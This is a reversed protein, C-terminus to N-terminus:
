LCIQALIPIASRDQVHNLSVALPITKCTVLLIVAHFKVRRSVAEVTGRANGTPLTPGCTTIVHCTADLFTFQDLSIQKCEMTSRVIAILARYPFVRLYRMGAGLLIHTILEQVVLTSGTKLITIAGDVNLRTAQIGIEVFKMPDLSSSAM